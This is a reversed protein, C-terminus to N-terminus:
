RWAEIYRSSWGWQQPTLGGLYKEVTKLARSEVLVEIRGRNARSASYINVYRQYGLKASHRAHSLEHVADILQGARTKRLSGGTLAITRRGNVMSFFPYKGTSFVVDDVYNGLTVGAAQAAEQVILSARQQQVGSYFLRDNGYQVSRVSKTFAKGIQSTREAQIGAYGLLLQSSTYLLDAALDNQVYRHIVAEGFSRTYEGSIASRGGAILNDAGNLVTLGGVIGAG